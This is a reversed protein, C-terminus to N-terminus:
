VLMRGPGRECVCLGLPLYVALPSPAGFSLKPTGESLYRVTCHPVWHTNLGYRLNRHVHQHAHATGTHRCCVNKIFMRHRSASIASSMQGQSLGTSLGRSLKHSM